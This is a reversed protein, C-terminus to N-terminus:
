DFITLSAGGTGKNLTPQLNAQDNGPMAKEFKACCQVLPSPFNQTDKLLDLM